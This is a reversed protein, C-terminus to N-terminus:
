FQTVLERMNTAVSDQITSQRVLFNVLAERFSCMAAVSHNCATHAFSCHVREQSGPELDNMGIHDVQVLNNLRVPFTLEHICCSLHVATM